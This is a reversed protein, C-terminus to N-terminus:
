KKFFRILSPWGHVHYSNGIEKKLIFDDEQKIKTRFPLNIVINPPLYKPMGSFYFQVESGTSVVKFSILGFISPADEVRIESGEAFWEAKPVPFIELKEQSDMFMVSRLLVILSSIVRSSDGEGRIGCGTKPNVFDPLIYKEKGFEFIKDIISHVRADKVLLLNIAYIISFFMDCAGISKFYMPNEPFSESIHEIIMKLKKEPLSKVNYPYGAFINYAFYENKNSISKYNDPNEADAANEEGKNDNDDNVEDADNVAEATNDIIKIILEELRQIEKNFIKEDDFIGLCRALYSFESFAFSIQFLDYLHFEPIYYSEISNRNYKQKNGKFTRSYQVLPFILGRLFKYKAKLYDIDRSLKFYDSVSILFCCRDLINQFSLKDKIRIKGSVSELIKLSESLSGMRNYGSIIYFLYKLYSCDSDMNQIDSLFNLASIKAGYIWNQFLKEPFVAKLGSKSRFHADEIYKSKQKSYDVKVVDLNKGTLNLRVKYDNDGKTLNYGFAMTAMGSACKISNIKSDARNIDIDGALSNGSLIFDPKNELYIKEKGNIQILKTKNNYEVSSIGGLSLTNYPRVAIILCSRPSSNQLVTKLEVAFEEFNNNINYINESLDFGSEKWRTNVINSELDKKQVVSSIREQPRQLEDKELIWFEISWSERSPSIMGSPDIFVKGPSHQNSFSIWDRNNNNILLFPTIPNFTRSKVSYSNFLWYPWKFYFFKQFLFYNNIGVQLDRAFLALKDNDIFKNQIKDPDSLSYNDTENKNQDKL